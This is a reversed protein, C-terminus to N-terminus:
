STITAGLMVIVWTGVRKRKKKKRRKKTGKISSLLSQLVRNGQGNTSRIYIYRDSIIALTSCVFGPNKRPAELLQSGVRVAWSAERRSERWGWGQRQWHNKYKPSNQIIRLAPSLHTKRSSGWIREKEAASSLNIERAKRYKETNCHWALVFKKWPSKWHWKKIAHLHTWSKDKMKSEM